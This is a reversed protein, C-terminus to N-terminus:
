PLGIPPIVILPYECATRTGGDAEVYCGDTGSGGDLADYGAGGLLVDDGGRGLLTDAGGGGNLTDAGSYSTCPPPALLHVGGTPTPTPPCPTTAYGGDLVNASSNGTLTDGAGGGVLNEISDFHDSEGSQGGGGSVSATVAAWRGM